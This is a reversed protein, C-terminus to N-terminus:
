IPMMRSRLIAERSTGALIFVGGASVNLGASAVTIGGMVSLGGRDIYTRLLGNVRFITKPKHINDVDMGAKILDM